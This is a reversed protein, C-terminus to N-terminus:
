RAGATLRLEGQTGVAVNAAGPLRCRLMLRSGEEPPPSPESSLETEDCPFESWGIWASAGDPLDPLRFRRVGAAAAMVLGPPLIDGVVLEAAERGDPVRRALIRVAGDHVAVGEAIGSEVRRIQAALMGPARQLDIMRRQAEFRNWALAANANDLQLTAENARARLQEVRSSHNSRARQLAGGAVSIRMQDGFTLAQVLAAEAARIAAAGEAEAAELNTAADVSAQTAFAIAAEEARYDPPTQQADKLAQNAAQAQRRLDDFENAVGPRLERYLAQGETVQAGDKVLWQLSSGPTLGTLLTAPLAEVVGPLVITQRRQSTSAVPVSDNEPDDNSAIGVPAASATALIVAGLLAYRRRRVARLLHATRSLPEVPPM